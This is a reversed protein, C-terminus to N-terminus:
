SKSAVLCALATPRLVRAGYLHLAKVADAFRLPPRYAEVERIQHAYTWAAPVGAIVKFKAGDTNAVNNSVYITMGAAMGVEGNRLTQDGMPTGSKVFRDDKLLLGYCWPPLVCFRGHRPANAEDLKVGLEVIYEYLAAATPTKPSADSGIFNAPAIQTHLGALFRDAEDALAYATERMAADMVHPMQQARDVDDIQFNVYRARDITLVTEADTLTEPPTIDANVAYDAVTVAGIAHIRVADGWARIDGEYDHNMVGRQGFVLAKHLNHLLRAAWVEPIFNNLSM